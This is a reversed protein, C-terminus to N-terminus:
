SKERDAREELRKIREELDFFELLQTVHRLVLGAARLRVDGAVGPEMDLAVVDLARDLLSGARMVGFRMLRRQEEILAAGFDPDHLYRRLTRPSVGAARAAEKFTPRELIARLVRRQRDSLRDRPEGDSRVIDAAL